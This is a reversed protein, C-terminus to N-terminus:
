EDTPQKLACRSAKGGLAVLSELAARRLTTSIAKTTAIETLRPRLPELQWLGALRATSARLADDESALLSGIRGLNGEPRAKRQRAAQARGELLATRRDNPTKERLALDLVLSLDQPSGLAAILTLVNEERERPVKGARVLDVLPRVAAPSGAA